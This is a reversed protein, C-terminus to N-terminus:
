GALLLKFNIGKNIYFMCSRVCSPMLQVSTFWASLWLYKWNRELEKIKTLISFLQFYICYGFNLLLKRKHLYLVASLIVWCKRNSIDDEPFVTKSFMLVMPNQQGTLGKFYGLSAQDNFISVIWAIFSDVHVFAQGMKKHFASIAFNLRIRSTRMDDNHDNHFDTLRSGWPSKWIKLSDSVIYFM